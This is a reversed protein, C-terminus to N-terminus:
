SRTIVACALRAGANGTPQTTYDDPNAHVILGRGVIDAEGSGVAISRSEFNFRAVGGADSRLSPLDGVHHAGMGHRGHARGQPNFHGGASNGDGSSCDGKEHVHFGHESNPKLGRVEGVVLVRDGHQTFRVTGATTNGRTPQLAASASVTNGGSGFGPMGACGALVAAAALIPIYRKM